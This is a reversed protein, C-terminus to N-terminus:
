VGAEGSVCGLSYPEVDHFGRRRLVTPRRSRPV